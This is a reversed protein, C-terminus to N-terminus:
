CCKSNIVVGGNKIVLNYIEFPTIREREIIETDFKKDIYNYICLESYDPTFDM